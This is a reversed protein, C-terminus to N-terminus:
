KTVGTDSIDALGSACEARASNPRPSAEMEKRAAQLDAQFAPNANLRMVTATAVVRGEEIDSLWHVNCIRRSDGIGRGRAIIQAARDPVLEALILSIGFGVTSHGSPYSGDRRLGKDWSPTCSPKGNVMFPRPRMYRKKIEVPAPGLDKVARNVLQALAPSQEQDPSLGASCSLAAILHKPSLNVDKIALEWRSGSQVKTAADAAARDRAEAASGISPPPPVLELGGPLSRGELYPGGSNQASPAPSAPRGAEAQTCGAIVLAAPLVMLAQLKQSFM